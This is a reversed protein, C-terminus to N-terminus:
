ARTGGVTMESIKITPLGVGVPIMQGEKGCMGIGLDLELDNGVATVHKLAEPGSGRLMAGRVPATVKGDEILYAESASFAFEGNTIDVQGGGFQVAYLGRKVSRIIEQPDSEGALMFTNTMRPLPIHKYSQRRGNGTAAAGMLEANLHDSLYARLVGNEILVTRGTPQGEDDVNLSGRRGPLTGDDVVTCLESAVREGVRGTFASSGKRNFDSELGHGVAEHLLIGPWGPGLVVEMTGAPAPRADLQTIAQGAVSRAMAEPTLASEFFEIGIRGGGGGRGVQRNGDDDAICTMGLRALPQVDGVLRGDSTAIMVYKIEDHVGVQVERIRRDFARATTDARILLDIKHSLPAGSLPAEITYLDHAMPTANIGVPERTGTTRAIFSATTAAQRIADFAIEATYAYGTKEGAIVRVGVGQAVSRATSKIIREELAVSNNVRYEFYLDAYDGGRGLATALLEEIQGVTLGFRTLFFGIADNTM